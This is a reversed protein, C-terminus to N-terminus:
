IVERPLFTKIFKGRFDFVPYLERGKARVRFVAANGPLPRVFEAKPSRNRIQRTLRNLLNPGTIGYREKLRLEPHTM